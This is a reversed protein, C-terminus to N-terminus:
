KICDYIKLTSEDLFGSIDPYLSQIEDINYGMKELQEKNLQESTELKFCNFERNRGRYPITITTTNENDTIIYNRDKFGQLVKGYNFGFLEIKQKFKTPFIYYIGDEYMGFMESKGQQSIIETADIDKEHTKMLNRTEFKGLNSLIYESMYSYANDIIDRNKTRTINDIIEEAMKLSSKVDTKFFMNGIFADALTVLSIYSLQAYNINKCRQRIQNKINELMKKVQQYEDKAHENIIKKLFLNGAIGYNKQTFGYMSSAAMEDEIPKGYIELVRTRVGDQSNDNSLPEEGTSIAISRWKSNSQIGGTQTGRLKSKGNAFLYIVNGIRDSNGAIQKEDILIPLDKFTKSLGEIGVNTADFSVKLSEASGWVSMACYATATKGGKSMAWNYVVFSRTDTIKLLPASFSSALIFRFIPNERLKRMQNIWETIDGKPNLEKIWSYTSSNTDLAFQNMNYPVFTSENVWGTTSVTTKVPIVDKNIFELESFYDVFLRATNSTIQMGKDALKTIKNATYLQSKEVIITKNTNLFVLEVKQNETERDILINKILVAERSVNIIDVLKGKKYVEKMIGNQRSVQYPEPIKYEIDDYIINKNNSIERKILSM